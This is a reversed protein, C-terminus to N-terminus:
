INNQNGYSNKKKGSDNYDEKADDNFIEQLSPRDISGPVSNGPGGSKTPSNTM